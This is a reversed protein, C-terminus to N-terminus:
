RSSLCRHPSKSHSRSNRKRRLSPSRSTSRSFSRSHGRLTSACSTGLRAGMIASLGKKQNPLNQFQALQGKVTKPVLNMRESHISPLPEKTWDRVYLEGSSAAATIKGKLVIEVQDRDLSTKCKSYCRSVYDKLEQPWEDTPNYFANPRAKVMPQKLPQSPLPPPAVSTDPLPPPPLPPATEPSPVSPMAGLQTEPPLPPLYNANNHMNLQIKIQNLNKNRKRKKKASGSNPSKGFQGNNLQQNPQSNLQKAGNINFRINGFQKPTNLLAPKAISPNANPPPPGPPLPPNPVKNKDSGDGPKNGAFPLNYGNNYYYQYYQSYANHNMQNYSPPYQGYMGYSTYMMWQQQQQQLLQQQTDDNPPQNDNAQPVSPATTAVQAESATSGQEAM